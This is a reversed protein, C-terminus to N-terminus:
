RLGVVRGPNLRGVPDFEAKMRDHIVRVDPALPQRPQPRSAHVTGVGIEAVFAGVAAVDLTQLDRPSLSWRHGTADPPPECETFTGLTRLMRVDETVAPAHGFVMVTTTSGDFLIPGPALLSRHVAFPDADNSSFWRTQAPMPNTRLILEAICGLTGLSGTMLRPLDFGSVNKVTPGGGTVIKGEASVYRVQLVASRTEGRMPRLVGNQGVAVAGGITGGREPLATVQGREALSAHLEAVSTGARVKVIMEEAIYEVIGTPAAITRTDDLLAGGSDWRTRGGAIAIPGSAGVEEAFAALVPDTSLLTATM